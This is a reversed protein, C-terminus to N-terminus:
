LPGRDAFVSKVHDEDIAFRAVFEGQQEETIPEVRVTHAKKAQRSDNFRSHTRVWMPETGYSVVPMFRNLKNHAFNMITTSDNGRVHMGLSAVNLPRYVQKARLGDAGVEVVYGNQWDYAVTRHRARLAATDNVAERLQRVFDVSVADDDDHRFQLCPKSPDKRAANLIRKM